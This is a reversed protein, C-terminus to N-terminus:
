ASRKCEELLGKCFEDIHHVGEATKEGYKTIKPFDGTGEYYSHIFGDEDFIISDKSKATTNQLAWMQILGKGLGSLTTDIKGSRRIFRVCYYRKLEEM